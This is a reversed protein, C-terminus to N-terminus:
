LASCYFYQAGDNIFYLHNKWPCHHTCDGVCDIGHLARNEICWYYNTAFKELEPSEEM